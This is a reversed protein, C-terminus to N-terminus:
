EPRTLRITCNFRPTAPHWQRELLRHPCIVINKEDTGYCVTCTGISVDPQSKRIKVCKRDLYPCWSKKVITTWDAVDESRTFAGFLELVKNKM